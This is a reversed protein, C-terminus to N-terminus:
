LSLLRETDSGLKIDVKKFRNRFWAIIPKSRRKGSIFRVRIVSGISGWINDHDDPAIVGIDGIKLEGNTNTDNIVEVVDGVKLDPCSM